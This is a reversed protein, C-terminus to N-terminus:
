PLPIGKGWSLYILRPIIRATWPPTDIFIPYIANKPVFLNFPRGVKTMYVGKGFLGLGGRIFSDQAIGKAGTATTYHILNTPVRAFLYISSIEIDRTIIGCAFSFDTGLDNDGYDGKNYFPNGFPNLGDTFAYLGKKTSELATDGHYGSSPHWPTLSDLWSWEAANPEVGGIYTAPNWINWLGNFDASNVPNEQCFVYADESVPALPSVSIFRGIAPYYWRAGFFYLGSVDDLYKNTQHQKINRDSSFTDNLDEGWCDQEFQDVIDGNKDTILIVNGAEDYHYYYRDDTTDANYDGGLDIRALTGGLASPQNVYARKALWATGSYEEEM